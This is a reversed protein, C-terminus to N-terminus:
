GQKANIEKKIKDYKLAISDFRCEYEHEKDSTLTKEAEETKLAKLLKKLSNYVRGLKRAYKGRLERNKSFLKEWRRKDKAMSSDAIRASLARPDEERMSVGDVWLPESAGTSILLMASDAKPKNPTYEGIYLQWDDSLKIQRVPKLLHPQWGLYKLKKPTSNDYEMVSIGPKAGKKGGKFWAKIIYKVGHRIPILESQITSKAYGKKRKPDIGEPYSVVLANRGSRAESANEAVKAFGWFSWSMNWEPPLLLDKAPHKKSMSHLPMREFDGNVALNTLEDGVLTACVGLVALSTVIAKKM